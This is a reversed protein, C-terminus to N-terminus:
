VCREKSDQVVRPDLSRQVPQLQYFRGHPQVCALELM